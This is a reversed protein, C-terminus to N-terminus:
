RGGSHMRLEHLSPCIRKTTLLGSVPITTRRSIRTPKGPPRYPSTEQARRCWNSREFSVFIPLSVNYKQIKKRMAEAAKSDDPTQTPTQGETGSPAAVGMVQDELRSMKQQPSETWSSDVQKPGSPAKGPRGSQFKRNRLKTPDVKSAWDESGPPQLMWDDRRNAPPPSAPAPDRPPPKVREEQDGKDPASIGGDPPPLSPGFDDDSDNDSDSASDRAKDGIDEKGVSPPLAPGIQRPRKEAPDASSSQGTCSQAGSADPGSEDLKRKKNDM